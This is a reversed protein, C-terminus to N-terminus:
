KGGLFGVWDVTVSVAGFDEEVRGKLIYPRSGKLMHCTRHYIKPFFVTEYIGTTDEFSIFKMADGERTHVTKGTVLWGITTVRRGVSSPLDRARTYNLRKLLNRYQDLPHISIPFGFAEKEQKLMLHRPYPDRAPPLGKSPVEGEPREFLSLAKEQKERNFFELAQWLLAPRPLARGLADFCGAKILCRVDQLHVHGRTRQLFSEPSTFSGRRDREHVVAEMAERSLERIQMLGIRVERGKGTFRIESQNIDPPLIRLGMRRAESLYEFAGYYGGGNSIVAAMFEAPYHARLWASKYAVLTYSASHPKCFSYGDFGMMMQWVEEIVKPEVGREAAGRTFREHFDRLKKERHKKSVVKRLTDAEAPDFGAMHMASQSLQEQFVMVGLTEELVPM